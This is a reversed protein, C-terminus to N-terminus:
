KGRAEREILMIRAAYTEAIRFHREKEQADEAEHGLEAADAECQRLHALEHQYPM